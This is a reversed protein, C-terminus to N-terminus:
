LGMHNMFKKMNVFEVKIPMFSHNVGCIESCQGYFWGTRFGFLYYLNLRGPNADMKIGSSPLTWSHIVDNSTILLRFNLKFPLVLAKDVDLLRFLNNNMFSDYKLNFNEYEYSWYWQHGYIKISLASAYKEEILYLIQLSPFALTLLMFIPISTWVIELTEQEFFKLNNIKNFMVKIIISTIFIVILIMVMMAHEHFETMQEMVSSSSEMLYNNMWEIMM